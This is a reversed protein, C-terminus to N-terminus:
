VVPKKKKCRSLPISSSVQSSGPVLAEKGPCDSPVVLDLKLSAEGAVLCKGLSLPCHFFLFLFGLFM